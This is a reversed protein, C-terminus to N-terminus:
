DHRGGESPFGARNGLHKVSGGPRRFSVIIRDTEFSAMRAKTIEDRIVELDHRSIPSGPVEVPTTEHSTLKHISHRDPRNCVECWRDLRGVFEHPSLSAGSEAKM